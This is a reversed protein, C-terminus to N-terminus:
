PRASEANFNYVDLILDVRITEGGAIIRESRNLASTGSLIGDTLFQEYETKGISDRQMRDPNYKAIETLTTHSFELVVIVCPDTAFQSMVKWLVEERASFSLSIRETIYRKDPGINSAILGNLPQDVMAAESEERARSRRPVNRAPKIDSEFQDRTLRDISTVGNQMLIEVVREISYLQRSLRPVHEADAVAGGSAYKLFGIELTSPLVIGSQLARERFREVSRQVRASFATADEPEQPFVDRSLAASLAESYMEFKHLNNELVKLNDMSPFPTREQLQQLKKQKQALLSREARFDGYKSILVVFAVLIALIIIGGSIWIKVRGELNM